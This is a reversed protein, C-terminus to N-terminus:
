GSGLETSRQNEVVARRAPRGGSLCLAILHAIAQQSGSNPIVPGLFEPDSCREQLGCHKRGSPAM